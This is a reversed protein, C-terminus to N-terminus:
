KKAGSRGKLDCQCDAILRLFFVHFLKKQYGSAKGPVIHVSVISQKLNKETTESVKM